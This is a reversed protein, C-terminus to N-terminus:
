SGCELRVYENREHPAPAEAHHFSPDLPRPEKSLAHEVIEIDGGAVAFRITERRTVYLGRSLFFQYPEWQGAAAAVDILSASTGILPLERVEGHVRMSLQNGALREIEAVDGAIVARVVEDIDVAIRIVGRISNSVPKADSVPRTPGGRRDERKSRQSSVQAGTGGSRNRWSPDACRWGSEEVVPGATKPGTEVAESKPAEVQMKVQLFATSTVGPKVIPEV